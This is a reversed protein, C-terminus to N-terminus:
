GSMLHHMAVDSRRCQSAISVQEATNQPCRRSSLRSLGEGSYHKSMAQQVSVRTPKGHLVKSRISRQSVPRRVDARIRCLSANFTRDAVLALHLECHNM